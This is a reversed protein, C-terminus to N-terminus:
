FAGCLEASNQENLAYILLTSMVLYITFVHMLNLRVFISVKKFM